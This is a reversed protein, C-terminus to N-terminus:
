ETLIGAKIQSRTWADVIVKKYSGEVFKDHTHPNVMYGGRAVTLSVVSDIEPLGDDVPAKKPEDKPSEEAASETETEEVAEDDKQKAQFEEFKQKLIALEVELDAKSALLEDEQDTPADAIKQDLEKIKAEVENIAKEFGATSRPTAM